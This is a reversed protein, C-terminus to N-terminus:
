AGPVRHVPVPRAREVDLCQRSDRDDGLSVENAGELRRETLIRVAVELSATHLSRHEQEAFCIAADCIDAHLNAEVTMGCEAPCEPLDGSFRGARVPKAARNGINRRTEHLGPCPRATESLHLAVRSELM